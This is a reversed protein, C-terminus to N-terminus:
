NMDHPVTVTASATSTNGACDTARYTITYARGEATQGSRECRLYIRGDVVQIDDGIYGSEPNIDYNPDFTNETEGENMQVSVLEVTVNSGCCIDSATITPVIEVMKHNPPWLIDPSCSVSLDPPTTDEVTITQTAQSSNGHCDTATWTVTTDGLPFLALADNVVTPECCIDSAVPDGLIVAQGGPGSCEATVDAPATLSPATTDVVTVIVEDSDSEALQDTVALTVAHVGLDFDYNLTEGTGLAMGGQSWEFSVIDDNTDPTSDADSSASGDLTVSAMCGAEAEVTQDAGANAVPPVNPLPVYSVIGNTRTAEPVSPFYVTAFNIIETGPEADSRVNVSFDAYGGESPGVEGVFWTITSTAPDYNGAPAIVSDDATSKVPGITLTTDDLDEELTDTFYVGFAIGQGENEYEARYDMQQGAVVNGEPGYKMNPDSGVLIESNFSSTNTEDKPLCDAECWDGEKCVEDEECPITPANVTIWECREGDCQWVSVSHPDDKNWGYDQETCRRCAGGELCGYSAPNGACQAMCEVIEGVEGLYPAGIASGLAGLLAKVCDNFSTACAKVLMLDGYLEGLIKSLAKDTLYASLKHTVCDKVCNGWKCNGFSSNGTNGEYLLDGDMTPYFTGTEDWFSLSETDTDYLLGGNRKFFSISPEDIGILLSINHDGSYKILLVLDDESSVMPVFVMRASNSFHARSAEDIYLFGLEQAYDFADSFEPDLLENSFDNFTLDETSLVTMEEYDLYYQLDYVAAEPNLYVEKEESTTGIEVTNNMFTHPPIGWRATVEASLYGNSIAPVTGLKWLVEHREPIYTGSSTSSVYGLLTSLREIVVVNEAPRPGDNRYEIIHKVTEGSSVRTPGWVNVALDAMAPLALDVRLVSWFVIRSHEYEELIESVVGYMPSGSLGSLQVVGPSVTTDYTWALGSGMESIYSIFSFGQGNYPNDMDDVRVHTLFVNVPGEYDGHVTGELNSQLIYLQTSPYESQSQYNLAGSLNIVTSTLVTGVRRLKWIAHYKDYIGSGEISETLYSEVTGLMEGTVSGKLYITREDSKEYLAGQCNGSYTVGELTAEWEGKFFGKGAFSGTTISVMEFSSFNVTGSLDGEVTVGDMTAQQSILTEVLNSESYTSEFLGSINVLFVDGIGWAGTSGVAIYGGGITQQVCYGNDDYAGGYTNSWQKMGYEDTKILWVDSGGAGYSGTSGAVIYGGDATQEVGCATDSPGGGFVRNWEEIGDIDTKILWLDSSGGGGILWIDGAIIFGGDATERVCKGRQTSGEGFTKNWQEIGDADTKILWVHYGYPTQPNFPAYGTIAYGGDSTQIACQGYDNYIGGFTKNWEEVGASDTKILWVDREGAGFSRTTGAMIYGGDTTIEVTWGQDDGTGGFTKHWQENGADDTKLLFVDNSGAGASTYGAIVFGGDATQRVCRGISTGLSDIRKNWEENGNADTKVLWLHYWSAWSTATAGVIIYGGDSTQQVCQGFDDYKMGGDFTKEWDALVTTSSLFLVSVTLVIRAFARM